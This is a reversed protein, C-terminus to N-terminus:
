EALRRASTQFPVNFLAAEIDSFYWFRVDRVMRDAKSVRSERSGHQRHRLGLQRMSGGIDWWGAVLHV